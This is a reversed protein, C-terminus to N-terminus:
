WEAGAEREQRELDRMTAATGWDILEDLTGWDDTDGVPQEAYGAVIERGAHASEALTVLRELATRVADARSTAAGRAILVDLRSLLEEPLRVAIQTQMGILM